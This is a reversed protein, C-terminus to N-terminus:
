VDVKLGTRKNEVEGLYQLAPVLGLDDLQAPRLDHVLNHIGRSM